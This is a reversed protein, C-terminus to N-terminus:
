FIATLAIRASRPELPHMHLDEVGEAPEGQLRDTYVYDAADDQSNTVNFVDLQVKVQDTLKYGLNLNLERYGDSRKSNDPTLAHAGLDRVEMAGFWPGLNDLLMGASAVLAPADEIHNGAPDGDTYRAKSIAVNANLELWRVPRYQATLELGRRRGPRGAETAGADANYTLESDFQMQFLTAAAQVHPIASTRVGVEYGTSEVLFPPRAVSGVDNLTGARVDNSHFGRGASLYLETEEWPGFVLSGKPQLIDADQSGSAGGVLNEDDAHFRDWRLGGIARVLEGFHLTAEGYVGFSSENVRDQLVTELVQRSQTHRADVYIRDYRAQVGVSWDADLGFVPRSAKVGVAGGLVTRRDNQARQDGNVPDELFHTFNNWLTLQSRVAYANASLQAGGSLDHRWEGSLSFREAQGGDSPDVAGFRGILGQDIARQPQDTTANWTGRYYMGTLSAGDGAWRLAANVKKLDDPHVWPGDLHVAEGAAILRGGGLEFSSGAFLRQDGVTGASVSVQTPLADVLAMRVSGVSSFDGEAAYYPGKTFHVGAALEPILFNLDTYGQGHAHTRANAPMSDVFTALDTGHDLNFGRLLYQNAKGEGSHVTVMLGPVTELLQGVRYVPRLELEQKTVAGESSTTAQGLLNLTSATVVVEQVQNVPADAADEASATGALALVATGALWALKM